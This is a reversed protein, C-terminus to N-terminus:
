ICLCHQQCLSRHIDSAYAHGNTADIVSFISLRWCINPIHPDLADETFNIFGLGRVISFERDIFNDWVLDSIIFSISLMNKSM